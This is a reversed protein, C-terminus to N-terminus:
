DESPPQRFTCETLMTSEEDTEITNNSLHQDTNESSAQLAMDVDNQAPRLNEDEVVSDQLEDMSMSQMEAIKDACNNCDMVISKLEESTIPDFM